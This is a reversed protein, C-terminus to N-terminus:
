LLSAAKIKGIKLGGNAKEGAGKQDSSIVSFGLGFSGSNYASAELSISINELYCKFSTGSGITCTLSSGKAYLNNNSYFENLDSISTASKGSCNALFLMGGIQIKGISEGFAYSYIDRSLTKVHQVDQARDVRFSTVLAVDGLALGDLSLFAPQKVQQKVLAGPTSKYINAM